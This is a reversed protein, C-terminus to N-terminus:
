PRRCGARDSIAPTSPSKTPMCAWSNWYASHDKGCRIAPPAATVLASVWRANSSPSIRRVWTNRGVQCKASGCSMRQISRSVAGFSRRIM